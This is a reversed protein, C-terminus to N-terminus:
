RGIEGFRFLRFEAKCEQQALLLEGTLNPRQEVSYDARKKGDLWVELQKTQVVVGLRHWQGRGAPNLEVRTAVEQNGSQVRTLQVDSETLLVAFFNEDRFGFGFGISATPAYSDVIRFDAEMAYRPGSVVGDTGRVLLLGTRDIVLRDPPYEWGEGTGFTRLKLLDKWTKVAKFGDEPPAPAEAAPAGKPTPLSAKVKDFLTKAERSDPRLDLVIRLADAAIAPDRALSADSFTMLWAVFDDDLKRREAVGLDLADLRAQATKALAGEDKSVGGAKTKTAVAALFRRYTVVASKADGRRDFVLAQSYVAELLSADEKEAHQFKSLAQDYAKKALDEKGGKLLFKALAPDEARATGALLSATSAVLALRAFARALGGVGRRSPVRAITSRNGM